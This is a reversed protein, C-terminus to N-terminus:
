PTGTMPPTKTPSPTASPTPTRSSTPTPSPTKTPKPTPSLTITPTPVATPADGRVIFRGIVKWDEGVFIRVEYSGPLWNSPPPNWDTYGYGGTAGDWPKTELRVQQGDRYWIATWQVGPTMNDYSFVAYLHGVPNQFVTAPKVAQTNVMQTSFLLPSFVADPNPTISSQFLAIVPLPIFPTSTMTPTNTIAPTDTITPTLTITPSVTITPVITITPTVSPTPSPPFYDYAIPEGYIPLWVALVILLLALGFLRWGGAVRQQRLRYFTMKRASRITQLGARISVIAFVVLLIATAIIGAHIDM